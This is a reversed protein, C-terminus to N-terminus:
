RQARLTFLFMIVYFGCSPLPGGRDPEAFHNFCLTTCPLMYVPYRAKSPDKVGGARTLALATLGRSLPTEGAHGAAAGRQQRAPVPRRDGADMDDSAVQNDDDEDDDEDSGGRRIGALAAYDVGRRVRKGLADLM